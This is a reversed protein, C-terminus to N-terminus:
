RSDNNRSVNLKPVRQQRLYPPTLWEAPIPKYTDSDPGAIRPRNRARLQHKEEDSLSEYTKWREGLAPRQDPPLKQLRKYQERAKKRQEPSLQVWEQMRATVRAQEAVAMQPYREAIGLWKQRRSQGMGNWETRLPELIQQQEKTLGSWRPATSAAAATGALFLSLSLILAHQIRKLRAQAM